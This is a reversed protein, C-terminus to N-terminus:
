NSEKEIWSRKFIVLIWFLLAVIPIVIKITFPNTWYQTFYIPGNILRFKVLSLDLYLLYFTINFFLIGIVWLYKRKLNPYAAIILLTIVNFLAIGFKDLNYSFAVSKKSLVPSFDKNTSQLKILTSDKNYSSYNFNVYEPVYGNKEILIEFDTWIGFVPKQIKYKGLSDTYVTDIDKISILANTIPQLTNHDIITGKSYFFSDCSSLIVCVLFILINRCIKNIPSM